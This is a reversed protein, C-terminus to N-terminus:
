LYCIMTETYIVAHSVDQAYAVRKIPSIARPRCSKGPAAGRM